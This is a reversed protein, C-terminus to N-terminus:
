ISSFKKPTVFSRSVSTSSFLVSGPSMLFAGADFIQEFCVMDTKEQGAVSTQERKSEWGPAWQHSMWQDDSWLKNSPKLISAQVIPSLLTTVFINVLNPSISESMCTVFESSNHSLKLSWIQVQHSVLNWNLNGELRRRTHKFNLLM